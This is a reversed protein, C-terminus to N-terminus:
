LAESTMTVQEVAPPFKVSPLASVATSLLASSVIISLIALKFKKMIFAGIIQILYLGFETDLPM